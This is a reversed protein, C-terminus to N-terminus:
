NQQGYYINRVEEPHSRKRCIPCQRSHDISQRLCSSGFLHGCRLTVVRHSGEPEWPELCLPCITAETLKYVQNNLDNLERSMDDLEDDLQEVDDLGVMEKVVLAEKLDDREKELDFNQQQLEKVIVEMSEEHEKFKAQITAYNCMEEQLLLLISNREADCLTMQSVLRELQQIRNKQIVEQNNNEEELALKEQQLGDVKLKEQHM